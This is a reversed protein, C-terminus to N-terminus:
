TLEELLQRAERLDSTSFGETFQHYVPSLTDRAAQFRGQERHFRALSVAVRLEWARAGQERALELSRRFCGEAAQVCDSLVTLEGKIRWLESLYWGEGSGECRMIAEEVTRLGLSGEGVAGLCASLEGLLFLYRPLFRADGAHELESQLVTVGTAADGRKVVVVGNFCRAWSEWLRLGHTGAHELLMAGYREAADLDGCLLAIPCAGQGLVSGLSLHNGIPRAEAVNHEVLRMAQDPNGLLWLIRAQFYHATVQQDFQFRAGVQQGSSAEYRALMNDIHRRAQTQNGMFHLSTALMRDSMMQDVSNSSSAAIAAFRRALDLAAQQQGHNLRDIWLGWLAKLRYGSDDLREALDLTVEWATRIASAAGLAFTLSWGLAASLVMRPLAADDGAGDLQALAREVWGRCEGM